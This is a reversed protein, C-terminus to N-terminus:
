DQEELNVTQLGCIKAAAIQRKDSSIFVEARMLKATAVHMLDLTRCGTRATVLPVLSLTEQAIRDLPLDIGYFRRAALLDGLLARAKALQKNTILARFRLAHLANEIEIEMLLSLPIAVQKERVFARVKASLPEEVILKLAIGTDFYLASM